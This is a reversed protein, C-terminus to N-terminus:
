QQKIKGVQTFLTLTDIVHWHEAIKGNEIRFIDVVDYNIKNGTPPNGLWEGKHTGTVNSYMMVTDDEAIIKKINYRFDPIAKIFQEHIKIFGAKWQPPGDGHHIYDDRMIENLLSFDHNQFVSKVLTEVVKKNNAIISM